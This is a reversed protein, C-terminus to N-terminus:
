WTLERGRATGGPLVSRGTYKWTQVVVYSRGRPPDTDFPGCEQRPAFDTFMVARCTYPGAAVRGTRVDELTLSVDAQVGPPAQIHGILRVRGGIAYCPKALVPHGTDWTYEDGCQWPGFLQAGAGVKGPPASVGAGVSPAVPVAADVAAGAAARTPRQGAVVVASREAPRASGPSPPAGGPVQVPEPATTGPGPAAVVPAIRADAPAQRAGARDWLQWAGAGIGSTLLAGCALVVMAWPRAWRSTAPRNRRWPVARRGAPVRSPHELAGAPAGGHAAPDHAAPTPEETPEPAPLAPSGALAAAADALVGALEGAPPRQRANADMCATVITRILEPTGPPYSPTGTLHQHMLEPILGRYPPRGTVLEYLLVGMGYVDVAASPDAGTFAEPAMYHPTGVVAHPTTMGPLDLLRAIGFDTLRAAPVGAEDRHLLVNDPKVDRHVVGLSHAHSLAAAVQGTLRAAEAPPVTRHRRLHDRLSGGAVLDMVLGLSDGVSLLDRVRVVNPHRLMLLITREQVFRTVLKPHGLLSEHLLKVAVQEGSARDVARWVTGTAGHGLPRVLIYLNGVCQGSLDVTPADLSPSGTTLPDLEM